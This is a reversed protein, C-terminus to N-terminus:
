PICPDVHRCDDVKTVKVSRLFAWATDFLKPSPNVLLAWRAMFIQASAQTLLQPVDLTVIAESVEKEVMQRVLQRSRSRALLRSFHPCLIIQSGMGAAKLTQSFIFVISRV